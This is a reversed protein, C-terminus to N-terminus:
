IVPPKIPGEQIMTKEKPQIFHAIRACVAKYVLSSGESVNGTGKGIGEAAHNIGMSVGKVALVLGDGAADAIKTGQREIAPM